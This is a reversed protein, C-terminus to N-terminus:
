TSSHFCLSLIYIVNIFSEDRYFLHADRISAEVKALRISLLMLMRLYVIMFTLQRTCGDIMERLIEVM